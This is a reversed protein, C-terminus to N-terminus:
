QNVSMNDIIDQKTLIGLYNGDELLLVVDHHVIEHILEPLSLNIDIIQLSKLEVTDIRDNPSSGSLLHNYLSNKLLLQPTNDPFEVILQNIRFKRLKELADMLNQSNKVCILPPLNAPKADLIERISTPPPFFGHARLWSDSFVKGLYREGTDPFLIVVSYDESSDHTEFYKEAGAAALGSSGGLLLGDKRALDRTWEFSAQDDVTVMEDIIDFDITGPIIDEGVGEVRYSRAKIDTNRFQHYHALISGEPDIGIIKVNPNKEKLYKGVGSITGGTGVGAIFHTIKGNTQKWIEPGTTLYHALPNATNFYQNALYGGETEDAIRKAVSYYSRPDDAEVDSPCVIVKCGIAQVLNIKEPSMKDPLVLIVQYGRQIAVLALGLGTNGSTAEVVTGGPSLLGQEEADNIITVAIRDKSSRGPNFTELKGYFNGKFNQFTSLSVMPTNGITEVISSAIDPLPSLNGM